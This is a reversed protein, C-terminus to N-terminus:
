NRKMGSPNLAVQGMCNLYCKAVVKGVRLRGDIGHLWFSVLVELSVRFFYPKTNSLWIM